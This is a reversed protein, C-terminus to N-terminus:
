GGAEQSAEDPKVDLISEAFRKFFPMAELTRRTLLMYRGTEIDPNVRGNADVLNADKMGPLDRLDELLWRFGLEKGSNGQKSVLFALAGALGSSRILQPLGHCWIGYTRKAEEGKEAARRSVKKYAFLLLEQGVTRM